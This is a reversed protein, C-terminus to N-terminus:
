WIFSFYKRQHYIAQETENVGGSFEGKINHIADSQFGGPLLSFDQQLVHDFVLPLQVCGDTLIWEQSIRQKLTALSDVFDDSNLIGGIM